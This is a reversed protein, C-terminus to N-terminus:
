ESGFILDAGESSAKLRTGAMLVSVNLPDSTALPELTSFRVRQLDLCPTTRPGQIRWDCVCLDSCLDVVSRYVRRTCLFCSGWFCRPLVRTKLRALLVVVQDRQIVSM